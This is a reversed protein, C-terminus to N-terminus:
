GKVDIRSTRLTVRLKGMTKQGFATAPTFTTLLLHNELSRRLEPSKLLNQCRVDIPSYEVMRGNEDITLEVDIEDLDLAVPSGHKVSAGTILGTPVDFASEAVGRVVLYPAVSGFLLIASVIGGAAPLAFPRMLTDFAMRMRDVRDAWWPRHERRRAVERSAAIYLRTKLRAPAIPAPMSRLAQRLERARRSHERCRACHELHSNLKQRVVVSLQGDLYASQNKDFEGCDILRKM